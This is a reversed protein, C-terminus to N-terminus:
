EAGAVGSAKQQQQPKRVESGVKTVCRWTGLQSFLIVAGSQQHEHPVRRGNIASGPRSNEHRRHAISVLSQLFRSSYIVKFHLYRPAVGQAAVFLSKPVNM